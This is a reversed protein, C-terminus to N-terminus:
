DIKLIEELNYEVPSQHIRTMAVKTNRKQPVNSIDTNLNKSSTILLNQCNTTLTGGASKFFNFVPQTINTMDLFVKKYINVAALLLSKRVDQADQWVTMRNITANRIGFHLNKKLSLIGCIKSDNEIAILVEEKNKKGDFVSDLATKVINNETEGGFKLSDKPFTYFDSIDKMREIFFSDTNNLAYIDIKKTNIRTTQVKRAKFSTYHKSSTDIM